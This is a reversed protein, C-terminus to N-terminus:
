SEQLEDDEKEQKIYRFLESLMLLNKPDLALSINCNSLNTINLINTQKDWELGVFDSTTCRYGLVEKKVLKTVLKKNEEM